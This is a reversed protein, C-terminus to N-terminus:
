IPLVPVEVVRDGLIVELRYSGPALSEVLFEGAADLPARWEGGKASLRLYGGSPDAGGATVQGALRVQQASLPTMELDVEVSEAQFLLRRVHTNSARLGAFQPQVSSDFALAALIRRAASALAPRPGARARARQSVIREARRLVWPPPESLGEARLWLEVAEVEPGDLRSEALDILLRPLEGGPSRKQENM